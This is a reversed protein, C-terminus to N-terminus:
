LSQGRNQSVGNKMFGPNLNMKKLTTGVATASLSDVAGLEVLRDAIMQLTWRGHGLPADSCAIAIIQAQVDGTIKHHRNKQKKREIACGLGGEVFRKAVDNVTHPSVHYADAIEQSTAITQNFTEDLKLLIQAHTIRYAQTKGKTVLELLENREKESLTVHYSRPRM